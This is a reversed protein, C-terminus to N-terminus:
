RLSRDYSWLRRQRSQVVAQPLTLESIHLIVPLPTGTLEQLAEATASNFYEFATRQNEDEQEPDSEGEDSDKYDPESDSEIVKRKLRKSRARSLEPNDPTAPTPPTTPPPAPTASSSKVINPIAKVPSSPGPKAYIMSKKGMQKVRAREAKNAEEVEKVRGIDATDQARKVAVVGTPKPPPPQWSPDNLLAAARAEDGGGHQWAAQIRPLPHEPYGFKFRVFNASALLDTSSSLPTPANSRGGRVLRPKSPGAVDRSTEAPSEDSSTSSPMTTQPKRRQGPRMVAPSDPMEFLNLPDPSPPTDGRNQRKRPREADYGSVQPPSM